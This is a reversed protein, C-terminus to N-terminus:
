ERFKVKADPAEVYDMDRGEVRKGQKLYETFGDSKPRAM